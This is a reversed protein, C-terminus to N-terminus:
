YASASSKWGKRPPFDAISIPSSRSASRSYAKIPDVQSVSTLISNPGVLNGIQVQAIGAIGSVLSTVRTFEMNLEAQEVNAKAAQVEAQAGLRAQIETDLQSQAIARAQALPTDREVDLSAKGLQAEAQALQAKAQDLAAKFQRPDVEFVVQGKRVVSGEKYDQKILYGAVRPQIQANISRFLTAVWESYIPTDQQVVTAVQVVAPPPTSAAKTSGTCGALPLSLGGVFLLAFIRGSVTTFFM